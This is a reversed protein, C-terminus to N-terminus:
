GYCLCFATSVALAPGFPIKKTKMAACMLIGLLSSFFLNLFNGKLGLYFGTVFLLRIDGYGITERKMSRDMCVSLLLLAGGILCSGLLGDLVSVGYKPFLMMFIVKWVLAAALLSGPIEYTDKDWLAIALLIVGLGAACIKQNWADFRLAAATFFVALSIESWLCETPIRERCYRCRGKQILWSFVPILEMVGLTHGCGPCRSRGGLTRKDYIRETMCCVFSGCVAGTVAAWFGLYISEVQNMMNRENYSNLGKM